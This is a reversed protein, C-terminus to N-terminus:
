DGNRSRARVVGLLLLAFAGLIVMAAPFAYIDLGNLVGVLVVGLAAVGMQITGLLASASGAREPFEELAATAGSPMTIGMGTAFVVLCATVTIPDYLETGALWLLLLAGLLALMVGLGILYRPGWPHMLRTALTGGLIYGTVTLPPYFGYEAPTVGFVGIFLEPSGAFFAFVAGLIAATILSYALFNRSGLIPRYIGIMRKVDLHPLPQANTEPLRGWAVATVVLGALAAAIFSARWSFFSDLLGGFLPAFAPVVAFAVMMMGMMRGLDAGDFSDRVAARSVVIGACAGTAQLIRGVILQDLAGATACIGSGALFVVLGAFLVSRRGFRDSLPGYILQMTAFAVLYVALTSQVEAPTVGFVDALQPMSPLYISNAFQGLGAMAAMM